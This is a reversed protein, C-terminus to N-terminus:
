TLAAAPPIAGLSESQMRANGVLFPFQCFMLSVIENIVSGVGAARPLPRQGVYQHGVGNQFLVQVELSLFM